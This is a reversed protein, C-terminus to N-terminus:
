NNQLAGAEEQLFLKFYNKSGQVGIKILEFPTRWIKLSMNWAPSLFIKDKTTDKKLLYTWSFLEKESSFFLASIHSM